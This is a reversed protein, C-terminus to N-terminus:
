GAPLSRSLSAFKPGTVLPKAAMANVLSSFLVNLDHIKEPVHDEVLFRCEGGLLEDQPEMTNTTSPYAGPGQHVWSRLTPAARRLFSFTFRHAEMHFDESWIALDM